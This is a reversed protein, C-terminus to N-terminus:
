FKVEYEAGYGVPEAHGALTREYYWDDHGVKRVTPPVRHLAQLYMEPHVISLANQNPAPAMRLRSAAIDPPAFVMMNQRYWVPIRRDHWCANRVADIAVYGHASFHQAWYELWHENLHGTGGQYPIAASFLVMDAIRTLDEVFSAARHGPLHEAVEVCIALEAHLGGPLPQMLDHAIFLEDPIRLQGPELEAGDLGRCSPVGLDLAAACWAGVGCGIDLVSAPRWSRFLLPLIISAAIHSGAAQAAFFSPNYVTRAPPTPDSM